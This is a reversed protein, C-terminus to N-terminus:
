YYFMIVKVHLVATYPTHVDTMTRLVKGDATDLMLLQGKAFGALLRSCDINLALCSVSGQEKDGEFCWRLTFVSFYTM